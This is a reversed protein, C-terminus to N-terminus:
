IREVPGAYKFKVLKKKSIGESWGGSETRGTKKDARKMGAVRRMLNNKAFRRM